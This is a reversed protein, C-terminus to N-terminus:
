PPPAPANPSGPPAPPTPPQSGYSVSGVYRHGVYFSGRAWVEDRLEELENDTSLYWEAEVFVLVGGIPEYEIWLPAIDCAFLVIATLTSFLKSM